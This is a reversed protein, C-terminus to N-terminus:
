AKGAFARVVEEATRCLTFLDAAPKVLFNEGGAREFWRILDEYFGAPDYLVVPKDLEGAQIMSLTSFFEDLTGVGGPLTLLGDAVEIMKQKREALDATRIVQTCGKHLHRGPSILTEPIVGIIDSGAEAFGDAATEMLGSAFGGFVLSHGERGLRLALDKINEPYIAPLNRSSSCFVCIKM